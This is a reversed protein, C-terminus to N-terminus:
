KSCSKLVPGLSDVLHGRTEPYPLLANRKACGRWVKIEVEGKKENVAGEGTMTPKRITM